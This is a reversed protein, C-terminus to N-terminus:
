KVVLMKKTQVFGASQMRFFFVGSAYSSADLTLSYRGAMQEEDLITAVEQGLVDYVSVTVRSTRPVDYRIISTPNFPNPYNQYLAYETPLGSQAQGVSMRNTTSQSSRSGGWTTRLTPSSEQFGLLNEWMELPSGHPNVVDHSNSGILDIDGDSGIDAIRLDHIGTTAIVEAYWSLGDGSNVWLVIDDPDNGWHGEGTLIDLDGDQDFDAAKFTHIADTFQDIVHETWPGSLPNSTEYWSLRGSYSASPSLVLDNRGDGNVDEVRVGVQVPWGNTVFHESWPTTSPDGLPLPNELWYGNIAIDLDGDHDIDGIGTGDKPRSSIMVRQWALGSQQFFIVLNERRIVIDIKGDENLDALEVDHSALTDIFHRVWPSTAPNGGPRPNEYWWLSIGSEFGRLAVLDIDGDGDIDGAQRDGPFSGTDVRTKEWLPYHYWFLGDTFGDASANTVDIYGDGDIDGVATTHPHRPNQADILVYRFPVPANADLPSAVQVLAINSLTTGVSNSIRCRYSSGNDALTLTPTDHLPSTAGVIDVANKQWQYDLPQTGVAAVSLRHYQGPAVTRGVPQQTILPAGGNVVLLAENSTTSGIANSIICRFEAGSDADVTPPTTYFSDSASVILSGNKQWLYSFPRQGIASVFFLATEGAIVTQNQPQITILPIGDTVRLLASSSTASGLSNAVVCRFTAGSDALTASPINYAISDAGIIDIGDRQWQFVLPVTGGAAVNFSVNDGVIVIQNSPHQTISPPEPNVHLLAGNSTATGASNFVVCRFSSGSDAFVVPPTTYSPNAGGPISAGNKQWQYALPLTGAAEISFTATQGDSVTQPSPHTTITPPVPPADEPSIRSATNFFYDVLGTFAPNSGANGAFPGISSVTLTHAFNAANTWTTGNYSYSQTWQNGVRKVRLYLVTAPTIPQDYRVNPSNNTFSASFIRTNSGDKVFDFRLFNSNDQQVMIGEIQYQTTMASEFKVEAEFDTNPCTQMVRPPLNNGPWPDHASGSSVNINLRADSTGTGSFSLTSPAGPNVFTWLSTNLTGASFDDSVIGQPASTVTLTAANSTASGLPNTVVCRFTSGNDGLVTTPTTYSANTAGSIDASNKQWQYGLPQSGIAAVTFSATQGVVVSQSQPHQTISPPTRNVHLLAANSTVTGGSNSVVCRFSLGSDAYITAPTTYSANTASAIDVSNKQWQYFLPLTGTAAVTFTATEGETVTQVTPHTTISPPSPPGTPDEPVVPSATNFFYDVLGIFAPNAGANGAFPGISSVTLTHAFNAANTWTTGNYSYSQTWQNGVRKVRLYLVTAPTIPQDYRVSPSNNTFSASFIRTNSGDKVFDFRLFNNNDQQVMIGEIQYQTTMASEFKVEVEFDTNPCTQMIRPPLNNGPWPDHASGSSVNINLRADSTGTGSFSLTSPAGPNVFTWLSTNLTGASFDDSQITSQALLAAPLLPWTLFFALVFRQAIRRNIM